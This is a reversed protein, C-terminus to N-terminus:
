IVHLVIAFHVLISLIGGDNSSCDWEILFREETWTHLESEIL